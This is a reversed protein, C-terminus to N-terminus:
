LLHAHGIRPAATKSSVNTVGCGVLGCGWGWLAAALRSERYLIESHAQFEIGLALQTRMPM